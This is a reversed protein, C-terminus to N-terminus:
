NIGVGMDPVYKDVIKDGFRKDRFNVEGKKMILFPSSISWNKVSSHEYLYGLQKDFISIENLEKSGYHIEYRQNSFCPMFPLWEKFLLGALFIVILIKCVKDFM